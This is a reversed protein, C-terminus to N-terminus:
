LSFNATLVKESISAKEFRAKRRYSGTNLEEPKDNTCAM